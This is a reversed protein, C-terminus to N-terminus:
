ALSTVHVLSYYTTPKLTYIRAVIIPKEDPHEQLFEKANALRILVDQQNSAEEIDAQM